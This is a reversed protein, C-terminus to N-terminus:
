STRRGHTQTNHMFILKSGDFTTWAANRTVGGLRGNSSQTVSGFAPLNTATKEDAGVSADPDAARVDTPQSTAPPADSGGCASLLFASIVLIMGTRM